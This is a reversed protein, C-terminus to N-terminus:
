TTPASLLRVHFGDDHGAALARAKARERGVLRLRHHRDDALGAHLVDDLQQLGVAELVDDHRDREERLRDPAVESVAVADTRVDLVRDLLRRGPGRSRHSERAVIEVLREDDDGAIGEAVEVQGPEDLEVLLLARGRRERQLRDLVRELEPDDDGVAVSADLAEQFLRGPALDEGVRDVGAYVHELRLHEAVDRGISRVVEGLLEEWQEELHAPRDVAVDHLAVPLVDPVQLLVALRVEVRQVTTDTEVNGTDPEAAVDEESLAHLDVVDLPDLPRRVEAVVAPDTGVRGDPRVRHEGRAHGQAVPRSRDRRHDVGRRVDAAARQDLVRDDAAAAVDPRVNADVLVNRNSVLDPDARLADDHGADADEGELLHLRARLDVLVQDELRARGRLQEPLARDHTEDVHVECRVRSELDGGGQARCELAAGPHHGTPLRRRGAPHDLPRHDGADVRRSDVDGVQSHQRRGNGPM